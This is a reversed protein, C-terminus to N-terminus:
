DALCITEYSRAADFGLELKDSSGEPCKATGVILGTVKHAGDSSCALEAGDKDVCDGTMLQGGGMGPDGPHDESLNRACVAQTEGGAQGDKQFVVDTGAPCHLQEVSVADQIDLITVTADPDDCLLPRYTGGEAETDGGTSDPGACADVAWTAATEEDGSDPGFFHVAVAVIVGAAVLFAVVSWIWDRRGTSRGGGRGGGSFGAPRRNPDPPMPNAGSRTPFQGSSPQAPRFPGSQPQGGTPFQGTGPRGTTPFQGSQRGTPFQGSQPGSQLQGPRAPGTPFQGSQPRAGNQPPGNPVQRPQGGTQPRRNQRYPDPQHEPVGADPSVPSPM